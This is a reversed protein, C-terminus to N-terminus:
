GAHGLVALHSTDNVFRVNVWRDSWEILSLGGHTTSLTWWKEPPVGLYYNLIARIPGDHSVICVDEGPVSAIFGTASASADTGGGGRSDAGSGVGHAALIEDLAALVRPELHELSEGNPLVTRYPDAAFANSLATDAVFEDWPRGEYDGLDIERL